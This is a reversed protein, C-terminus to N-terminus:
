NTLPKSCLLGGLEGLVRLDKRAPWTCARATEEEALAFTLGGVVLALSVLNTLGGFLTWDVPNSVKRFFFVFWAPVLFYILAGFAISGPIILLLNRYLHPNQDQAPKAKIPLRRRKGPFPDYNRSISKLL